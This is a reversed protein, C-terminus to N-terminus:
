DRGATHEDHEAISALLAARSASIHLAHRLAVLAPPEEGERGILMHAIAYALEAAAPTSLERILYELIVRYELPDSPAHFVWIAPHGATACVEQTLRDLEETEASSEDRELTATLRAIRVACCADNATVPADAAIGEVLDHFRISDIM